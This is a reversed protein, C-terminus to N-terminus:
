LIRQANVANEVEGERQKEREGYEGRWVGTETEREGINQFRHAHQIAGLRRSMVAVTVTVASIDGSLLLAMASM